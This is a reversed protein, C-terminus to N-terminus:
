FRTCNIEVCRLNKLGHCTKDNKTYTYPQAFAVITDGAKTQKTRKCMSIWLHRRFPKSDTSIGVLLLTPKGRRDAPIVERITAKMLVQGKANM